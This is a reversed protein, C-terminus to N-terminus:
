ADRDTRILPVARDGDSVLFPHDSFSSSLLHVGGLSSWFFHGNRCFVCLALGYGVTFNDVLQKAFECLLGVIRGVKRDVQEFEHHVWVRVALRNLVQEEEREKHSVRISHHFPIIFLTHMHNTLTQCPASRIIPNGRGSSPSGAVSPFFWSTNENVMSTM